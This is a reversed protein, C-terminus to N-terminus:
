QEIMKRLSGFHRELEEKMFNFASLSDETLERATELEKAITLLTNLGVLPLSSKLKHAYRSVANLDKREVALAMEEMDAPVEELFLAIMSREFAKDGRSLSNLYTFDLHSESPQFQKDPLLMYIKQMLSDKRFPKSLYDNMGLDLCKQLDTQMSHATLAIIPIDLRLEKRIVEAAEFGNMEPMQLDMLILDFQEEKLLKLGEKGNYATRVTFKGAPLISQVLKQNMLIDECLLVNFHGKKEHVFTDNDNKEPLAEAIEFDIDFFFETGRGLESDIQLESNHLEVLSKAISLGLGTGGYKRSTDSDAQTFREFINHLQSEPIGIGTDSVRFRLRATNGDKSILVISLKVSGFRTFKFANGILNMLVQSLRLQDGKVFAPVEPDIEMTYQLQKEIATIRFLAFNKQMLSKLNYTQHELQVNGTSIKSFDLVDNILLLLKQGAHRISEVYDHQSESLPTGGLVDSFGIVANLPTRLEHSMNAHFTDKVAMLTEIQKKEAELEMNKKRLELQLIVQRALTYMAEKQDDTLNRPVTDIVCLSGLNFGEPTSLPVGAYFRAGPKGTVLPNDYFRSDKFADKIEFLEDQMIAHQCFSIDRPTEEMDVGIRSKFWQRRSDLLTILAIPTGCIHSALRTVSDFDEETATDMINYSMLAQLREAENKPIPLQDNM